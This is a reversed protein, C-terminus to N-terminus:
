LWSIKKKNDIHVPLNNGVGFTIDNKGWDFNPFSFLSSSDFRINRGFCFYKDPDANKILKIAGLWCDKLTFNANLEKPWRSLEYVIYVNVVNRLIFSIKDQKLCSDKFEVSIISNCCKM